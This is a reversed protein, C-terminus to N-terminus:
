AVGELERRLRLIRQELMDQESLRAETELKYYALNREAIELAQQNIQQATAHREPFLYQSLFNKM